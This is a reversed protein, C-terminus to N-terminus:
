ALSRGVGQGALKLRACVIRSGVAEWIEGADRRAATMERDLM